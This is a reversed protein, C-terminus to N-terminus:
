KMMKGLFADITKFFIMQRTNQKPDCDGFMGLIIVPYEFFINV